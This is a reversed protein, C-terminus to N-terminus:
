LDLVPLGTTGTMWTKLTYGSYSSVFANLKAAVTSLDDVAEVNTQVVNAPANGIAVQGDAAPYYCDTLSIGSSNQLFGAIAGCRERGAGAPSDDLMIAPAIVDTVFGAVAGSGTASITNKGVAGGASPHTMDLYCVIDPYAYCNVIKVSSASASCLARGVIGAVMSDGSAPVGTDCSTATLTVASAVGCNYIDVPGNADPYVYGVIGGVSYAGTISAAEVLGCDILCSKGGKSVARGAMGGVGDGSGQIQSYDDVRCCIINGSDFRGAIGGVNGIGILESGLVDCSRITTSSEGTMSGVIGGVNYTGPASVRVSSVTCDMVEASELCGILGATNSRDASGASSVDAANTVFCGNVTCGSVTGNMQYGILGGIFSTQDNQNAIIGVNSCGSVGGTGDGQGIIGGLANKEGASAAENCVTGLNICDSITGTSAWNGCIGGISTRAQSDDAVVITAFNIINSVSAAGRAKAVVGAYRWAGADTCGNHEFCSVSDWSTGNKSGIVVNKIVPACNDATIGFLGADSDTYCTINFVRRFQGDFTGAFGVVPAWVQGAMDIDAGLFVMDGEIPTAGGWRCMDNQDLIYYCRKMGPTQMTGFSRGTNRQLAFLSSTRRYYALAEGACKFVIKMGHEFSVPPVAMIYTGAPMASAESCLTISTSRGALEFSDNSPDITIRGGLLPSIEADDGVNGEFIVSNVDSETITFQLLSFMNHLDVGAELANKDAATGVAVLAAPDAFKGAKCTQLAPFLTEVKGGTVTIDSRYPSVVYFPGSAGVSITGTFMGQDADYTFPVVSSGYCLAVQDDKEWVFRNGDLVAKSLERSAPFSFEVLEGTLEQGAPADVPSDIIIEKNCSVAMALCIASALILYKKM